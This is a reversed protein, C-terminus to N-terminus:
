AGGSCGIVVGLSGTENVGDGVGPAGDKGGVRRWM